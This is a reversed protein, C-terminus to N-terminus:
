FARKFENLLKEEAVKDIKRIKTKEVMEVHFEEKGRLGASVLRDRGTNKASYLANDVREKMKAITDGSFYETLGGSITLKFKKLFDDEKVAIRIRSTVEKAREIGTEPLLIVFEEGGFRAVIDSKRTMKMLIKALRELMEDAKMHGYTDNIKKFHDIDIMFLSLRQKGRKAKDFEMEFITKFFNFNYVGTKEDNTAANYLMSISGNVDEFIDEIKKRFAPDLVSLKDNIDEKM